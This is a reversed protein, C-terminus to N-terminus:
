RREWDQPLNKSDELLRLIEALDDYNVPEAPAFGSRFERNWTSFDQRSRADDGNLAFLAEAVASRLEESCTPGAVIPVSPIPASRHIIRLGGPAYKDAIVDKVAGVDVDGALVAKAVTDHHPLFRISLFDERNLGTRVLESIPILAGSTSHTSAFAIRKQRLDGLSRLSSDDRVILASRYSPKGRANLPRAVLRLECRNRAELYTLGGLSAIEVKGTCLSEVAEHYNRSLVLEFTYPTHATLYELLPTYELIMVRPNYRSIFTIRVTPKTPGAHIAAGAQVMSEQSDRACGVLALVSVVALVRCLISTSTSAM